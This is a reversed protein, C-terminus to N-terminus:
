VKFTVNCLVTFTWVNIFEIYRLTPNVNASDTVNLIEMKDDTIQAFHCKFYNLILNFHKMERGEERRVDAIHVVTTCSLKLGTIVSEKCRLLDIKQVKCQDKEGIQSIIWDLKLM